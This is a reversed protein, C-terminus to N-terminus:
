FGAHMCIQRFDRDLLLRDIDHTAALETWRESNKVCVEYRQYDQESSPRLPPFCVFQPWSRRIVNQGASSSGLIVYGNSLKVLDISSLAKREVLLRLGNFDENSLACNGGPPCRFNCIPYTESVYACGTMACIACLGVVFIIKQFM